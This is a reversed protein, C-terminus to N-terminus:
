EEDQEAVCGDTSGPVDDSVEEGPYSCVSEREDYEDLTSAESSMGDLTMIEDFNQSWMADSHACELAEQVLHEFSASFVIEDPQLERSGLNHIAHRFQSPHVFVFGGRWRMWQHGEAEMALRCQKLSAGFRLESHLSETMKCVTCLFFKEQVGCTPGDCVDAEVAGVGINREVFGCYQQAVLQSAEEDDIEAAPELHEVLQIVPEEYQGLSQACPCSQLDSRLSPMTGFLAHKATRVHCSNLPLLFQLICQCFAHEGMTMVVNSIGSDQSRFALMALCEVLNPFERNREMGENIMAITEPTFHSNEFKLFTLSSNAPLMQVVGRGASDSLSPISLRLSRVHTRTNFIIAAVPMLGLEDHRRQFEGFDFAGMVYQALYNQEQYMTKLSLTQLTSNTRLWTALTSMTRMGFQGDMHLSKLSTPGDLVGALVAGFDDGFEGIVSVKSITEHQRLAQV